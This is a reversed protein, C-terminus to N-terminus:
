WPLNNVAPFVKLPKNPAEDAAAVGRLGHHAVCSSMMHCATQLSDKEEESVESVYHLGKGM